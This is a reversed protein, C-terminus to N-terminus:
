GIQALEFHMGDPRSGFHGGWFFGLGNAIEVLERTAGRAGVGVPVRGLPNEWANLDIATGWAHNSLNAQRAETRGRKLRADFVGACTLIRDMLGAEEWRSFLAQFAAAALRHCHITGVERMAYHNTIAFLCKDLQPIHLEVINEQEWGNLIEIKEPNSATPKLRFEFEGFLSTTVASDPQQPENPRSPWGSGFEAGESPPTLLVLGKSVLAEFTNADVFATQELGLRAQFRILASRTKPGFLGDPSIGAAHNTILFEQLRRVDTGEDRYHMEYNM